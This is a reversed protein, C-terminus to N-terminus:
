SADQRRIANKGAAATRQLDLAQDQAVYLTRAPVAFEAGAAAVLDMIRLLLDERIALFEGFSGTLIHCHIDIDLSSEGFGVFRVRAVDPDVKPHHRLMAPIQKLLARLQGPSTEHRLAITARFLSTNSRSLNEVNMNALQGNPVSLETRDLTRIRTSRLSIDEVTGIKDGIRCLEGVRIVEDGIISVGGFLNELTKQAAFAIALSGIGLGAVATAMDFGLISIMALVAVIVVLVKVLRQGLIVISGSRFGSGALAKVRAREGWRNVLRWLLWATGAVLIVGTLRQYYVRLLLPVGLFYVGIQHFVVTLIITAPAALSLHVDELFPHHRWRLWIRQGARVLHVTGWALGLSAPILLVCVILRWLPTSFVQRSALFRPLRSEVGSSELQGFLNPVDALIQSSFLWIEGAEPDYVRALDVNTETGNLRFVGIREHDQPVGEQSSGERHDSIAGVRGVFVNDLLEHLQYAMEGGKAARESKSLQLYQAAEKNKGSQAAQLFGIVTGHPTSRGLPDSAEAATEKTEPAGHAKAKDTEKEGSQGHAGALISLFVLLVCYGPPKKFSKDKGSPARLM